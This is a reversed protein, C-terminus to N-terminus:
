GNRRRRDELEEAFGKAAARGGELTNAYVNVHYTDGGSKSVAANVMEGIVKDINPIFTGNTSPIFVEPQAGAGIFYPNGAIGDGGSDRSFESQVAGITAKFVDGLNWQGSSLGKNIIETNGGVGGLAGIRSTVTNAFDIVKQIAREISQITAEFNRRIDNIFIVIKPANDAFWTQLSDLAPQVLKWINGLYEFAPKAVNQWFGYLGEKIQPLGTTIFWDYFNKLYPEVETWITQLWGVFPSIYNLYADEIFQMITPMGDNMFWNWFDTLYPSVDTWIQTLTDIFDGVAPLATETIFSLIGPLAETTFWNYLSQLGPSIATWTNALFNFFAELAPRVSTDIFNRIAPLGENVFWNYMADLAPKIEAWAVQIFTSLASGIRELIPLVMDQIGGFNTAFAVGLAIIGGILLGIPSLVVALGTSIATFAAGVAILIPGLATIAAVILVIQNALEPNKDMWATIGNILEIISEVMPQVTNKNFDDLAVTQFTEITGMLSDFAKNTTDATAAVVEAASPSDKMSKIMGDIGNTARLASLGVIGYSGGLKVMLANQQEIPLKDLANDLEVIVESFDRTNGANDYLTVGLDALSSAVMPDYLNLLMSKLQTGAEAGIINSDAFVGLTAVVEELDFGFQDAVPGVNQLAQGLDAVDAKSANAARALLDSVKPVDNMGLKFQAIAGTVIRSASALSLEGAAALELVTPMTAMSEELSQGAKMLDLMALGADEASFVTDAGMKLIFDRAKELEAGTAGGFIEIQAMLSEFDAAVKIGVGGFALIPATLLTLSQGLQSAKEGISNLGFDFSQKVERMTKDVDSGDIVIRGYATGLDFAGAVM